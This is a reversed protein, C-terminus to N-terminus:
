FPLGDDEGNESPTDEEDPPDEDEPPDMPTVALSMFKSGSKAEKVWAALWREEGDVTIRGKYDPQNDKEKKDNKFLVGSMDRQKEPM